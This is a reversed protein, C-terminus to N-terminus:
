KARAAHTAYRANALIADHVYQALGEHVKEYNAAFRQDAIYMEALGVHFAHSCPYFRHDIQLRHKEAFEMARPDDAPVDDDLLAALGATVAESEARVEAWDKKAYRRTRSASERYADTDGWREAAEKEYEKPDFEGFAEFMDDADMVVDGETADIAADVARAMGALRISKEDLMRRQIRLAQLRDFGPDHMIRAIDALKFGLEKFFLIQQLTALADDDYHRYGNESRESPVLLGLRDYHHLTRVSISALAAVEGIALGM